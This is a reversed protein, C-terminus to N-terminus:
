IVAQERPTNPDNKLEPTGNPVFRIHERESTRIIYNRLIIEMLLFIFIGKIINIIYNLRM